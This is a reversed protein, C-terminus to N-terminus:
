EINSAQNVSKRIIETAISHIDHSKSKTRLIKIISPELHLILRTSKFRAPYAWTCNNCRHDYPCKRCVSNKANNCTQCLIQLNSRDDDGGQFVPRRHDILGLDDFDVGLDTQGRPIVRAECYECHPLTDNNQKRSDNALPDWNHEKIKNDNPRILPEKIPTNSPGRWYNNGDWDLDFGFDYKLEKWRRRAHAQPRKPNDARTIKSYLEESSFRSNPPFAQLILQLHRTFPAIVYSEITVGDNNLLFLGLQDRYLSTVVRNCNISITDNSGSIMLKLYKDGVEGNVTYRPTILHGKTVLWTDPHRRSGSVWEKVKQIIENPKM